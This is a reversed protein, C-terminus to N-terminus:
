GRPEHSRVFNLQCRNLNPLLGFLKDNCSNRINLKVLAVLCSLSAAWKSFELLLGLISLKHSGKGGMEHHIIPNLHKHLLFYTMSVELTGQWLWSTYSTIVHTKPAKTPKNYHSTYGWAGLSNFVYECFETVTIAHASHASWAHIVYSTNHM